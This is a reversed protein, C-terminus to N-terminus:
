VGREVHMGLLLAIKAFGPSIRPTSWWAASWLVKLEPFRTDQTEVVDIVVVATIFVTDISVM